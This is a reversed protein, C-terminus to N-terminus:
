HCKPPVVVPTFRTRWDPDKTIESWPRYDDPVLMKCSHTFSDDFERPEEAVEFLNIKDVINFSEVYSFSGENRSWSQETRAQRAPDYCSQKNIRGHRPIECIVEEQIKIDIGGLSPTFVCEENELELPTEKYERTVYEREGNEDLIYERFIGDEGMTGGVSGDVLTGDKRRVKGQEVLVVTVQGGTKNHFIYETQEWIPALIMNPQVETQEAKSSSFPCSRQEESSPLCSVLSIGFIGLFLFKLHM